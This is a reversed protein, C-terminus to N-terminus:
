VLEDEGSAGSRSVGSNGAPTAVRCRSNSIEALLLATHKGCHRMGDGGDEADLRIGDTGDYRSSRACPRLTDALSDLAKAAARLAPEPTFGQAILPTLRRM